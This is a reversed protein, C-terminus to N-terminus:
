GGYARGHAGIAPRLRFVRVVLSVGHPCSYVAFAGSAIHSPASLRLGPSLSARRVGHAERAARESGPFNIVLAGKRQMCVARSLMANKTKKLSEARVAEAIGPVNRECVMATAEPTVDRPSLGTGGCTLVVDCALEDTAHVIADSLENVDDHVVVHSACEWGEGEILSVLAAGATDDQISRTDSSTVVAFKLHM